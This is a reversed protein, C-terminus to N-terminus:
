TARRRPRQSSASVYLLFGLTLWWPYAARSALLSSGCGVVPDDPVPDTVAPEPRTSFTASWPAPSVRGHLDALGQGVTLVYDTDTEWDQDPRVLVAHSYDGYFHSVEADVVAGDARTVSVRDLTAASVGHAFALHLRGEPKDSTTAHGFSGPAPTMMAVPQEFTATGQLRQWLAQWYAAVAAAETPPSGPTTADLFREASWPYLATFTEIREENQRLADVSAVAIHLLRNGWELGELDLPLDPMARAYVAALADTPLYPEPTPVGGVQAMFLVDSATDLSAVDDMTWGADYCRSREMFLSDFHEDAMGHSAMGFLFAVHPAADPSSYPPDFNEQIWSLYEQQFPEWHSAEGHDRDGSAYGWDPFMTGNVLPSLAGPATLLDTLPGAPLLDLAEVSIWIHTSQGNALALGPLALLACAPALHLLDCLRM